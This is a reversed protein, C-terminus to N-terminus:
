RKKGKPRGRKKPTFNAKIFEDVGSLQSPKVFKRRTKKPLVTESTKFEELKSRRNIITGDTKEEDSIENKPVTTGARERISIELDYEGISIIFNKIEIKAM